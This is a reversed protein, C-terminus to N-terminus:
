LVLPQRSFYVNFTFRRASVAIQGQVTFRLRQGDRDAQTIDEAVARSAILHPSDGEQAQKLLAEIVSLVKGQGVSDVTIKRFRASERVKLAAIGEQLRAEFWDRTVMEYIPRDEMNVGPDVFYAAPGYELGFNARNGGNTENYLFDKQATTLVATNPGVAQLEADWPASVFDPDAALRNVMYAVDQWELLDDHWIVLTRRYDLIDLLGTPLGTTLWDANNVALCLLYSSELATEVHLALAEQAAEDAADRLDTVIGYFQAGAVICADLGDEYTEV